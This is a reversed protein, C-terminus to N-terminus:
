AYKDRDISVALLKDILRDLTKLEDKELSQLFQKEYDVAIPMVEDYVSLGTESLRLRSRRRDESDTSRNVLHRALLRAVARSVVSKEIATRNCVEDASIDPYEALIMMIRWEPMSIGFKDEYTQAISGSMLNSLLSLRYPLFTELKLPKRHKM